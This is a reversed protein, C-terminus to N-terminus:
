LVKGKLLMGPNSAYSRKNEIVNWTRELNKFNSGKNEYVNGPRETKKTSRPSAMDQSTEPEIDSESANGIERGGGGKGPSAAPYPHPSKGLSM